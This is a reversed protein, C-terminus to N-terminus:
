GHMSCAGGMEEGRIITVGVVSVTCILILYPLSTGAGIHWAMFAYQPLPPIAGCMILRPVLHRLFFNWWQEQGSNVGTTSGRAYDSNQSLPNYVTFKFPSPPLPRPKNWPVIRANALHSPLFFINFIRNWDSNSIRVDPICTLGAVMRYM